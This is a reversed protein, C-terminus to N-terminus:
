WWEEVWGELFLDLYSPLEDWIEQRAEVNHVSFRSQCASCVSM